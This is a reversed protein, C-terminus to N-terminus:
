AVIMLAYGAFFMVSLALFDKFFSDASM